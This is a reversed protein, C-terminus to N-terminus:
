LVGTPDIGFSLENIQRLIKCSCKLRSRAENPIYSAFYKHKKSNYGLLNAIYDAFNGCILSFSIKFLFYKPTMKILKIWFQNAYGSLNACRITALLLVDRNTVGWTVLEILLM